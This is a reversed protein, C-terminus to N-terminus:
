PREGLNAAPLRVTFVTGEGGSTFELAGKMSEVLSKCTSLGLGLGRTGAGRKTTFGSEFIRASLQPPIGSGQDEITIVVDESGGRAGLRIIGERPSAEMANQVLNFLM